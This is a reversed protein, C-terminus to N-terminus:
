KRRILRAPRESANPIMNLLDQRQLIAQIMVEGVFRQGEENLHCCDDLYVTDETHEFVHTLDITGVGEDALRRYMDRVRPYYLTIKRDIDDNRLFYDREVASLPKSGKFYQNPQLVFFSPVGMAKSSVHASRVFREYSQFYSDLEEEPGLGTPVVQKHMLDRKTEELIQNRLVNETKRLHTLYANWALHCFMSRRVLPSLFFETASRQRNMNSKLRVIAEITYPSYENSALVSWVTWWPFDLPYGEVDNITVAMDLMNLYYLLTFLSQPQKYSGQALCLVTLRSYGKEKLASLLAESFLTRNEHLNYIQMGVSGGLIGVVFEDEETVYPYDLGDVSEFGANNYSGWEPEATYGFYPHLRRRGAFDGDAIREEAPRSSDKQLAKQLYENKASSIDEYGLQLRSRVYIWSFLELLAITILCILFISGLRVAFKKMTHVM